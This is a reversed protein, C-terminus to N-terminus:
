FVFNEFCNVNTIYGENVLIFIKVGLKFNNKQKFLKVNNIIYSNKIKNLTHDPYIIKFIPCIVEHLDYKLKKMFLIYNTINFIKEVKNLKINYLESLKKLIQSNTSKKKYKFDIKLIKLPDKYYKKLINLTEYSSYSATYYFGWPSNDKPYYGSVISFLMEQNNNFKKIFEDITSKNTNRFKINPTMYYLCLRNDSLIYFIERLLSILKPYNIIKNFFLLYDKENRVKIKSLNYEYYLIFHGIESKLILNNSKYFDMVINFNKLISYISEKNKGIEKLVIDQTKPHVLIRLQNMLITTNRRNNLFLHIKKFLRNHSVCFNDLKMKPFKNNSNNNKINKGM